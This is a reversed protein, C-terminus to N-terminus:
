EVSEESKRIFEQNGFVSNSSSSSFNVAACFFASTRPPRFTMSRGPSARAAHALLHYPLSRPEGNMVSKGKRKRLAM